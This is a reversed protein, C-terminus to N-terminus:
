GKANNLHRGKIHICWNLPVTGSTSRAPLEERTVLHPEESNLNAHMEFVHGSRPRRATLFCLCKGISDPIKRRWIKQVGKGPHWAPPATGQRQVLQPYCFGVCRSNLGNAAPSEGSASHAGPWKTLPGLSAPPVVLPELGEVGSGMGWYRSQSVGEKLSSRSFWCKCWCM